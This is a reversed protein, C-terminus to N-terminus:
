QASKALRNIFYQLYPTNEKLNQWWIDGMFIDDDWPKYAAYHIIKYDFTSKFSEETILKEKYLRYYANARVSAPIISYSMPLYKINLSKLSVIINIIDQDQYHFCHKSLDLGLETFNVERLKKLNLLLPSGIVYRAHSSYLYRKWYYFSSAMEAQSENFNLVPDVCAGLYYDALDNGYFDLLDTRFVVDVDCYIIKDIDKLLKPLVLRSYTATSIDRIEFCGKIYKSTNVFKISIAQYFDNLNKSIEEQVEKTVSDDILLYLNYFPQENGKKACSLLSVIACYAQRFYNFDFSFAINIELQQNNSM